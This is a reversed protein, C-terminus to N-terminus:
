RSVLTMVFLAVMAVVLGGGIACVVLLIDRRAMERVRELEALAEPTLRM